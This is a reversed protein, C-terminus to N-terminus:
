PAFLKGERIHAAMDDSEARYASGDEFEVVPLMVQGTLREVDKRRSRPLVPEKVIEYDIGQEDLARQVKWCSDVDSHIFTFPCRHLKVKAMAGSHVGRRPCAALGRGLARLDVRHAWVLAEAVAAWLEEPIETGLELKALSEALARDDRIPVGAEKAAAIIREAVHGRGAAVVKPAGPRTPDFELAAAHRDPTSM